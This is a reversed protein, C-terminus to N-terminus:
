QKPQSQPQAPPATTAPATKEPEQVGLPRQQAKGENDQFQSVQARPTQMKVVFDRSNTDLQFTEGYTEFGRAIVQLEITSGVPLIDITAKGDPDSKVELSGADQGDRMPHFIIAANQIPKGNYGKLVQVTVHCTQPPAKYKRGHKEEDQGHATLSLMLTICGAVVAVSRLIRTPIM